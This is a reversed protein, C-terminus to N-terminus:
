VGFILFRIFQSLSIGKDKLMSSIRKRQSKTVAFRLHETIYEDKNIKKRGRTEAKKTYNIIEKLQEIEAKANDLENRMDEELYNM